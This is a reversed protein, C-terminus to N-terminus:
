EVTISVRSLDVACFETVDDRPSVEAGAFLQQAISALYGHCLKL